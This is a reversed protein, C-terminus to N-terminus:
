LGSSPDRCEGFSDIALVVGSSLMRGQVRATPANCAISAAFDRGVIVQRGHITVLGANAQTVAVSGSVTVVEAALLGPAPLVLGVVAAAVRLRAIALRNSM